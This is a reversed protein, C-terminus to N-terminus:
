KFGKRASERGWKISRSNLYILRQMMLRLHERNDCRELPLRVSVAKPLFLSSERCIAGCKPMLREFM